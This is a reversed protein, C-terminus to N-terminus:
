VSLLSEGDRGDHGPEDEFYRQQRSKDANAEDSNTSM